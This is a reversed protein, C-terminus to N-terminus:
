AGVRRRPTGALRRAKSRSNTADLETGHGLERMLTDTLVALVTDGSKGRLIEVAEENEGASAIFVRLRVLEGQMGRLVRQRILEVQKLAM